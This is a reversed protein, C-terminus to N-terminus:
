RTSACRRRAVGVRAFLFVVVPADRRIVARPARQSATEAGFMAVYAKVGLGGPGSAFIKKGRKQHSVAVTADM